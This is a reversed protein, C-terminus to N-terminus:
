CSFCSVTSSLPFLSLQLFSVGLEYELDSETEESLVLGVKFTRRMVELSNVAIMRRKIREMM